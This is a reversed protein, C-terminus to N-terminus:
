HRARLRPFQYWSPASAGAKPSAPRRAWAIVAATIYPAIAGLTLPVLYENGDM